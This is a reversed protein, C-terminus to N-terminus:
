FWHPVCFLLSPMENMIAVKSIETGKTVDVHSGHLAVLPGTYVWEANDRFTLSNYCM